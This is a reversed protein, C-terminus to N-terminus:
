QLIYKWLLMMKLVFKWGKKWLLSGDCGSAPFKDNCHATSKVLFFNSNDVPIKLLQKCKANLEEIVSALLSVIKYV